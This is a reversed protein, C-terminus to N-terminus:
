LNKSCGQPQELPFLPMARHQRVFREPSSGRRQRDIAVYSWHWGDGLADEGYGDDQDLPAAPSPKDIKM